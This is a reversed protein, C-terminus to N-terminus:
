VHDRGQESERADMDSSEGAPNASRRIKRVALAAKAAERAPAPARGNFAVSRRINWLHDIRSAIGARVAMFEEVLLSGKEENCSRCCVLLNDITHAGGRSVPIRHDRSPAQRGNWGRDRNMVVGCYPCHKGLFAKLRGSGIRTSLDRRRAGVIPALRDVAAESIEWPMKM